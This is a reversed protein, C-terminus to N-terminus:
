FAIKGKTTAAEATTRILALRATVGKPGTTAAPTQAYLKASIGGTALRVSREEFYPATFDHSEASYGMLRVRESIWKATELDGPSASKKSGFSAHKELDAQIRATVTDLPPRNQGRLLPDFALA